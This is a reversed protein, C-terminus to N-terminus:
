IVNQFFSTSYAPRYGKKIQYKRFRCARPYGFDTVKKQALVKPNVLGEAHHPRMIFYEQNTISFDQIVWRTVDSDCIVPNQVRNVISNGVPNILFFDKARILGHIESFYSNNGAAMLLTSPRLCQFSLEGGERGGERGGKRGGSRCNTINEFKKLLSKEFV